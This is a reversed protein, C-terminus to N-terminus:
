ICDSLLNLNVILRKLNFENYSHVALNYAFYKKPTFLNNFSMPVIWYSGEDLTFVECFSKDYKLNSMRHVQTSDGKKEVIFFSLDRIDYNVRDEVIQFISIFFFAEKKVVLEFAHLKGNDYNFEGTMRQEHFKSDVLCIDLTTFYKAFDEFSIYFNGSYNDNIIKEFPNKM